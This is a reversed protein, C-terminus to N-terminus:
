EYKHMKDDISVRGGASSQIKIYCMLQEAGARYCAEQVEGALNMADQYPAEIVTEFPCVKYPFGSNKIISIAEDVMDYPHKGGGSPLVQIAINVTKNMMTM